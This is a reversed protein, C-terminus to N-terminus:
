MRKKAATQDAADAALINIVDNLGSQADTPSPAQGDAAASGANLDNIVLLADVPSIFNDGDVDYCPGSENEGEAVKTASGANLYNIILLADLPSVHDDRDVDNPKDSNQLPHPNGVYINVTATTSPGPPPLIVTGDGVATANVTPAPDTLHYTFSDPGTYNAAPVYNFSGDSNFTLTGHAPGDGKEAATGIDNGLVGPAGVALPSGVPTKYYDNHAEPPHNLPAVYIAATAINSVIVEGSVTTGATARYTFSDPGSYGADPVYTFGGEATFALTGHMPGDVKIAHLQTTNTAPGDNALVGPPAVVLTADQRTMYYDNRAEPPPNPPRVYVTVTAVDHPVISNPDGGALPAPLGNSIRYTFSDSGLYDAAPTYVFGGKGDAAFTVTGHAPGTNSVITLPHDDTGGADNTLVGPSAITLVMNQQTGYFDNRAELPPNTPRVYITVIAVDHPVNTGPDGTATPPPVITTGNSIRYTFSDPGFYGAAPTYVFGGNGDTAFAVTGHAPDTNSIVKLPHDNSGGADNALVGPSAVTLAHDQETGYYDNHAEPPPNTPRVYIAVTAVDHPVITGPDGSANTTPPPTTGNSIRYSFSDPGFYGAAPTYVFGGNGEAAFAVTGHAPGTNSIVKLPHDNTGGSDNALVGPSTVTLPSDQDTNYFDNHAEPPPNVPAVFIGVTALNSLGNTTGVSTATGNNARYTFSDQGSFTADPVYTLSGNANLTLTGHAPGDGKVASLPHENTGGSDNGLVGPAMVVLATNQVMQYTDNRAELPPALPKVNITVTAINSNGGVNTATAAPDNAHYTFSDLGSYNADPVYTFSGDQNLTLTGHAPGSDKVAILNHGAPGIDNALVGKPAVALTSNVPTNYTDNHAEPPHNNAAVYIGVTAINSLVPTTNSLTTDSARYTFTVLGTVSSAPTYTFSGNTNFILGSPAESVLVASLPHENITGTDNGLVGPASISLTSGQVIQYTDNRAELTRPAPTVSISVTAPTESSVQGDWAFYKFSDAGSFGVNPKYVLGNAPTLLLTGHAPGGESPLHITIADGDADQDNAVLSAVTINLATDQPTTLGDNVAVPPHNVVDGALLARSELSELILRRLGARDRRGTKRTLSPYM